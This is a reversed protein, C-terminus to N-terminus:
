AQLQLAFHYVFGDKRRIISSLYKSGHHYQKNNIITCYLCHPTDYKLISKFSLSDVFSQFFQYWKSHTRQPSYTAYIGKIITFFQFIDQRCMWSVCVCVCVCVCSWIQKFQRLFLLLQRSARYIIYGGGRWV